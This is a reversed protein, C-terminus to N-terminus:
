LELIDIKLAQLEEMMENLREQIETMKTKLYTEHTANVGGTVTQVNPLFIQMKHLHISAILLLKEKEEKQISSILSIMQKILLGKPVEESNKSDMKSQRNELENQPIHPSYIIFCLFFLSSFLQVKLSIMTKSLDNFVQTM